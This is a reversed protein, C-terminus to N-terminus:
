DFSDSRLIVIDVTPNKKCASHAAERIREINALFIARRDESSGLIALARGTTRGQRERDGELITFSLFDGTTPEQPASIDFPEDM